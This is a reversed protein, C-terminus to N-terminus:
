SPAHAPDRPGAAAWRRLRRRLPREIALYSFIATVLVLGIYIPFEVMDPLPEEFRAERFWEWWLEVPGHLLYVAFSVNGLFVLPRWALVRSALHGEQAAGLIVLGFLVGLVAECRVWGPIEEGTALVVMLGLVGALFMWAAVAPSPRQGDLHMRALAMGLLFQPLHFLPFFQAFNHWTDYDEEKLPEMVLIRFASVVVVLALARALLLGPPTRRVAIILLPFMAYLFWEVSLSWAPPNWALASPPWWAQLSTLVLASNLLFRGLSQGDELLDGVYFYLAVLLAFYYAPFLRSFRAVFFARLSRGTWRLEDHIYTLVFGSLIFFFTVAEYATELWSQFFDPLRAFREPDYHTVVVVMAAFFRLTTLPPINPRDAGAVLGAAPMRAAGGAPMAPAVSPLRVDM